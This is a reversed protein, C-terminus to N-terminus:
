KFIEGDRDKGGKRRNRESKKWGKNLERKQKNEIKKTHTPMEKVLENRKLKPKKKEQNPQSQM